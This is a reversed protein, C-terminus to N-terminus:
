HAAHTGGHAERESSRAHAAGQQGLAGHAPGEGPVADRETSVGRLEVGV